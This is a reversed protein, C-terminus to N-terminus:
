GFMREEEREHETSKRFADLSIAMKANVEEDPVITNIQFKHRELYKGIANYLQPTCKEPDELDKVIQRAMKTDIALLLEKLAEEGKTM